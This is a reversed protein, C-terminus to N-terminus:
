EGLLEEGDQDNRRQWEIGREKAGERGGVKTSKLFDLLSVMAKENARLKALGKRLGAKGASEKKACLESFSEGRRKGGDASLISTSLLSNQRAM